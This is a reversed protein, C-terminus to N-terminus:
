KTHEIFRRVQGVTLRQRPDPDDVTTYDFAVEHSQMTRGSSAELKATYIGLFDAIPQATSVTKNHVIDECLARIVARIPKALPVDFDDAFQGFKYAEILRYRVSASYVKADPYLAEYVKQETFSEASAVAKLLGVLLVAENHNLPIVNRVLMSPDTADINRQVIGAIEKALEAQPSM